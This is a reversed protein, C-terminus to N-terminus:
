FLLFTELVVFFVKLGHNIFIQKNCLLFSFRQGRGGVPPTVSVNPATRASATCLTAGQRRVRSGGSRGGIRM